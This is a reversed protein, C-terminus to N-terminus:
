ARRYVPRGEVDLGQFVQRPRAAPDFTRPRARAVWNTLFREHAKKRGSPPQASEWAWAREIEGGEGELQVGPYAAALRSLLADPDVIDPWIQRIRKGALTSPEPRPKESVPLPILNGQERGRAQKEEEGEEGEEIQARDTGPGHGVGHRREDASDQFRDYNVVKLVRPGTGPGTGPIPYREILFPGNGHDALLLAVTTRAVKISVGAGDGATEGDGHAITALTHSLEGRGVDYLRGHWSAQGPKWNALFLIEILVARQDGRLMRWVPSSRLRRHLKIYGGERESIM